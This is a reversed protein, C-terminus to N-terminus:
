ARHHSVLKITPGDRATLLKQGLRGLVRGRLKTLRHFTGAAVVAGLAAKIVGAAGGAAAGFVLGTLVGLALPLALLFVREWGYLEGQAGSVEAGTYTYILAGAAIPMVAPLLGLALVWGPELSFAGEALLVFTLAVLATYLGALGGGALARLLAERTLLRAETGGERMTGRARLLVAAEYLTVVLLAGFFVVLGLWVLRETLTEATYYTYFAGRVRTEVGEGVAGVILVSLVAMVAGVLAGLLVDWLTRPLLNKM